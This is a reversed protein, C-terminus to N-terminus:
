TPRVPGKGTAALTSQQTGLTSPLLLMLQFMVFSIKTAAGQCMSLLEYLPHLSWEYQLM